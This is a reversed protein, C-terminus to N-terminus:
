CYESRDPVPTAALAPREQQQRAMAVEEKSLKPIRKSKVARGPSSERERKIDEEGAGGM